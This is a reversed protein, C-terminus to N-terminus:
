EAMDMFIASKADKDLAEEFTKPMEGYHYGESIKSYAEKAKEANTFKVTEYNVDYFPLTQTRVITARKEDLMVPKVGDVFANSKDKTICAHQFGYDESHHLQVDWKKTHELKKATSAVASKIEPTAKELAKKAAPTIVLSKFSTSPTNNIAQM